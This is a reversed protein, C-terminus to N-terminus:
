QDEDGAPYGLGRLRQREAPSLEVKAGRVRTALARELLELEATLRECAASEGACRETKEHPDDRWQFLERRPAGAAAPTRVLKWEDDRLSELAPGWFNGLALLKTAGGELEKARGLAVRSFDRGRFHAGPSLQALGCITPAVDLASVPQAVVGAVVRGPQAVILPVHLLEDYLTHGHEWDGHDLFEEGHDAVLVVLTDRARGNSELGRLLRGIEDDTYAVEADYLKEARAFDDASPAVRKNRWLVVQERTGFQFTEDRQDRADAFRERFARPPAYRAHPDFYHVLLLFRQEQAGGLWALAADTTARADRLHDNDQFVREDVDGFGQMLGFARGLFEVNVIAGTRWRASACREALTEHDPALGRFGDKVNGGAGHEQPALSTFLSAFSPLTWPACSFAHEFRLGRAALADLNPTLGRPNGYCGLRDARLTDVAIVLVNPTEASARPAAGAASSSQTGSGAAGGSGDGCASSGTAILLALLLALGIPALRRNLMVDCRLLGDRPSGRAGPKIRARRPEVIREM